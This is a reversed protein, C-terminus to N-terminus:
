LLLRHTTPAFRREMTADPHRPRPPLDLAVTAGTRIAEEIALLAVMDALGEAGDAEPATGAAICDSFYALQGAFHDVAPFDTVTVRDGQRLRLSMANEFRFAPDLILEGQTGLVRCYEVGETGFSCFFQALGQPFRLTVAVHADIETFRPDQPPRSAMAQVALPEAGFVHRAANLCYVGIDQLPGGWYSAQLRHNGIASQFGFASTFHVPQGIKGARIAELAALTGPENHLRYATMLFRGSAEAAAIMARSEELTTALPKEVLVHKGARLARIAYDAHMSNPLAIYVADIRDSAVLADYDGYGLVEPIAHFDALERARPHGSVLAQVRSNGTAPVGPLFAEQAIWGAGIVAYRIM